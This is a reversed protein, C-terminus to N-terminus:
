QLIELRGKQIRVAHAAIWQGKKVKVKPNKTKTQWATKLGRPNVVRTGSGFMRKVQEKAASPSAAIIQFKKGSSTEVNYKKLPNKRRKTLGM